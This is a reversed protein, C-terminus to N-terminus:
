QCGNNNFRFVSRELNRQDYAWAYESNGSRTTGLYFNGRCNYARYDVNNRDRLNRIANPQCGGRNWACASAGWSANDRYWYQAFYQQGLSTRTPENVLPAGNVNPARIQTTDNLYKSSLPFDLGFFSVVYGMGNLLSGAPSSMLGLYAIRDMRGRVHGQVAPYTNGPADGPRWARWTDFYSYYGDTFVLDLPGLGNSGTGVQAVYEGIRKPVVFNRMQFQVSSQVAGTGTDFGLHRVVPDALNGGLLGVVRSMFGGLGGAGNSADVLPAPVDAANAQLITLKNWYSLGLKGVPSSSDLDEFRAIAETGIGATSASVTREWAIYRAAEAAHIRASHMEWFYILWLVMVTLIPAMIAMEVVASGRQSERGPAWRGTAWGSKTSRWKM